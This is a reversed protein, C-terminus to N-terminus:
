RSVRLPVDPDLLYGDGTTLLIADLGLQRMTSLTTYLRNRAAEPLIHEDPWGVELLATTAVAVGPAETRRRALELLIRRMAQRRRLAIRRGDPLEVWDGREHVVVGRAEPAGARALERRLARLAVRVEFDYQDEPRCSGARAAAAARLRDMDAGERDARAAERALSLELLGRLLGVVVRVGGLDMSSVLREAADLHRRAEDPRDVTAELGGLYAVALAEFRPDFGTIQERSQELRDRALDTHGAEWELIGLVCLCGGLFWRNGVQRFIEEASRYEARAAALRGQDQELLGRVFRVMGEGVRDGAAMVKALADELLPSAEAPRGREVLLNALAALTRGESDAKGHEREIVLAQELASRAEDLRGQLGRITGIAHLLKAELPRDREDRALLLGRELDALADANRGKRKHAGARALLMAALTVSHEGTEELATVATDLLQLHVDVPFRVVLQADIALLARAALARRPPASEPGLGWRVAQLVNDVDLSGAHHELHRRRTAEEAGSARLAAAAYERITLYTGLRQTGAADPVSTTLMSKDRLSQVVDSIPPAGPHEALSVVAECDEIRFGGRFVSCQALVAQEWPDLHRWSWDISLRLSSEWRSSGTAPRSLLAWRDSIRELLTRPGMTSMRAAALEIALPIGDLERVLEAVFPGDAESPAYGQRVRRAREVFLQVAESGALDQGEPLGLPGLEFAVEGPLGLLQRSTALLQAEPALALWTGVTSAAHAVVGEFADLIVLSRGRAAIACGAARVLDEAARGPAAAPELVDLVARAVGAADEAETLDCLWIGGAGQAAFDALHLEAYRVALRTKGLGAMAFVTVLREGRGLLEHLAEIERTRGVFAGLPARVNTGVM